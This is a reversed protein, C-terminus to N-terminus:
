KVLVMQRTQVESGVAVRYLYVGSALDNADFRVEHRGQQQFGSVLEQVLQGAVNYIRVTVEAPQSLTYSITTSPNFPNPYNQHLEFGGPLEAVPADDISTWVPGEFAGMYPRAPNRPTGDIDVTVFAVARGALDDDQISDGTLRLNTQSVFDVSTSVSNADLQSTFQWLELSSLANARWLGFDGEPVYVNNYDVEVTGEATLRWHLGFGNEAEVVFINNVINFRKTTTTFAQNADEPFGVAAHIGAASTEGLRVSNHYIHYGEDGASRHSAFGFVGFDDTSGRVEFDPATAVTNNYIFHEGININFVFGAAYRGATTFNAGHLVIENGSIRANEVAALYIGGFWAPNTQVGSIHITNGTYVQEEGNYFTTIGRHGAHIVNDVVYTSGVSLGLDGFLGVGDKVQVDPTGIVNNEIRINSPVAGGAQARRVRVGESSGHYTERQINLNRINVNTSGRVVSIVRTGAGDELLFTLNRGDDEEDYSGDITVYSTNDISLGSNQADVGAEESIAGLTVTAEVGAAPRITLPTEASLSTQNLVVNAGREDIDSTVYLTIPGTVNGGNIAFFAERLTSYHPDVGGPASGEAGVYYSGELTAQIAGVNFASVGHNAAMVYITADGEDDITVGFDGAANSNAGMGLSPTSMLYQAGELGDTIDFFAVTQSVDTVGVFTAMILRDGMEFAKITNSALWAGSLEAILTGDAEFHKPNIGADGTIPSANFLFSGDAMAHVSPQIGADTVGQLTIVDPTFTAGNDDTTFRVVRNDRAVAAYIVLSNDAASGSVSIRDGLRANALGSYEIAVVPAATLDDWRYVKLNNTGISATNSAFIIGDDSVDIDTLLLGFFAGEIGTNDLTGVDAGTEPDLIRVNAVGGAYSAVFIRAEGEVEGYAMGRETNTGFWTPLNAGTREWVVDSQAWASMTLAFLAVLFIPVRVRM